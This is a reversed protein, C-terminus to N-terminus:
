QQAKINDNEKIEISSGPFKNNHPLYRGDTIKSLFQEIISFMSLKNEPRSLGHGEDPYLLYSVPIGHAKMAKVIQDSESKKVRPDNAGQVILLPRTIQGSYTLPSKYRLIEKGNKTDPNGGIIKILHAIHPKWYLPISNILTELNSPGVIDIGAMYQNPTMSMGVLTAYGGYSGGMIIVKDKETIGESIAWNMADTLDDQMAGAWEGNGANIFDKGFGTSGRYNINLVAYGRNALWQNMPSFGWRDRANPGGHVNLILTVPKTIKSDKKALWRPLTLYSILDLGDRSKIKITFVETFPLDKQKSNSIFLFKEKKTLRDYLYYKYPSNCKEFSIIWTHDEYDRSIIEVNGDELEQLYNLDAAIQSDIITWNKRMYDVAVAQVEKTKTNILYDDIDGKPDSFIERNDLSHLNMELLASTNRNTSDIMYLKDGETSLHLPTTTLMDESSVRKFLKPKNIRDKDFIFIEGKGDSLMKSGIRIYFDDDAVFSSYQDVNKYELRRIGSEINIKYIDFYEFVRDNVAVLIETPFSNSTKLISARVGEKPTLLKQIGTEINVSTLYWNENGKDDQIYVIHKSNKAWIYGQIGRINETTVVKPNNFNNRLVVWINMVGQYPALYSITTGDSSIQPSVHDPNGFLVERPILIDKEKM